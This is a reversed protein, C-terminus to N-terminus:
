SGDKLVWSEVYDNQWQLFYHRQLVDLVNQLRDDVPKGHGLLLIHDFVPAAHTAVHEELWQLELQYGDSYDRLQWAEDPLHVFETHDGASYFVGEYRAAVFASLHEHLWNDDRVVPLCVGHQPLHEVAEMSELHADLSHAMILEAHVMRWTHVGFVAICLGTAYWSRPVVSAMWAPLALLAITQARTGMYLLQANPTHVFVSAALLLLIALGLGDSAPSISRDRMRHILGLVLCALLLVALAILQGQEVHPDFLVLPRGNFFEQWRDQEHDLLIRPHANIAVTVKWIAAAIAGALGIIRWPKGIGAWRAHWMARDRVFLVLEFCGMFLVALSGGARHTAQCAFVALVAVGLTTWRVREREVWWAFAMLAFGASLLFTFFGLLFIFSFSFPLVWLVLAANRMGAARAAWWAGIGGALLVLAAYAVHAQPPSLVVTLPILILDTLDVTHTNIAYNVDATHYRDSFWIAKTVCAHLVHMPGDLTLLFRFFFLSCASIAILALVLLGASRSREEVPSIYRREACARSWGLRM